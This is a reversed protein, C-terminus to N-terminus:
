FFDSDWMISHQNPFLSELAPHRKLKGDELAQAGQTVLTLFDAESFTLCSHYRPYGDYPIM